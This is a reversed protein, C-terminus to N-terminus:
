ASPETKTPEDPSESEPKEAVATAAQETAAGAPQAADEAAPKGAADTPVEAGPNGALFRSIQDETKGEIRKVLARLVHESLRIDRDLGDLREPDCRFFCLVYCGRKRGKIEYALKREDWKECKIIEGEARDILRDIETKVNGFDAAFAPDFLFMGEYDNM